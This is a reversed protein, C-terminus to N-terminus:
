VNERYPPSGVGIGAISGIVASAPSAAIVDRTRRPVSTSQAGNRWGASM